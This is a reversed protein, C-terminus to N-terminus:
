ESDRLFILLETPDNPNDTPRFPAGLLYGTIKAEGAEGNISTPFIISSPTQNSTDIDLRFTGAKVTLVTFDDYDRRTLYKFNYKVIGAVVFTAPFEEYHQASEKKTRIEEQRNLFQVMCSNVAAKIDELSISIQQQVTHSAATKNKINGKRKNSKTTEQPEEVAPGEEEEKKVSSSFRISDETTDPHKTISDLFVRPSLDRPPIVFESESNTEESM